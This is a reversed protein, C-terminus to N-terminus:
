CRTPLEREFDVGPVRKGFMESPNGDSGHPKQWAQEIRQCHSYGRKEIKQDFKGAQTGESAQPFFDNRGGM